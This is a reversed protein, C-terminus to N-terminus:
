PEEKVEVSIAKIDSIIEHDYSSNDTGIGAAKIMATHMNDAEVYGWVSVECVIINQVKFRKM